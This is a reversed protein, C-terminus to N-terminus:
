FRPASGRESNCKQVMEEGSRGGVSNQVLSMLGDWGPRKEHEGAAILEKTKRLHAENIENYDSKKGVFLNVKIGRTQAAEIFEFIKEEPTNEPFYALLEPQYDKPAGKPHAITELMLDRMCAMEEKTAGEPTTIIWSHPFFANEVTFTAGTKKSKFEIHFPIVTDHEYMQEFLAQHPLIEFLPSGHARNIVNLATLLEVYRIKAAEKEEELKTRMMKGGPMIQM